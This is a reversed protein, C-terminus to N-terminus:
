EQKGNPEKKYQYLLRWMDNCTARRTFEKLEALQDEAEAQNDFPTHNIVSQVCPAFDATTCENLKSCFRHAASVLRDQFPERNDCAALLSILIITKKLNTRMMTAMM